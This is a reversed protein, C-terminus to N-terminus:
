DNALDYSLKFLVIDKENYDPCGGSRTAVYASLLIAANLSEYVAEGNLRNAIFAALFSDGSGVTDKVKIRMGDLQYIDTRSHYAAGHAGKTLLVEKLNPFCQFLSDMQARENSVTINFWEALILLEDDNIKLTECIGILEQIIEKNYFPARLNVDFIRWRARSAYQLLTQKSKLDRAALSGFVFADAEAIADALQADYTIYDWAVSEVIEYAVKTDELLHVEVTSTAFDATQRVYQTDVHLQQIGALLDVGNDDTGVQSIIHSEINNKSLHYTVNLPAGGIRRGTLLNDWLVEGFCFVKKM